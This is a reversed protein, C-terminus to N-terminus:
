IAQENLKLIEANEPSVRDSSYVSHAINNVTDFLTDGRWEAGSGLAKSCKSLLAKERALKEGSAKVPVISVQETHGTQNKVEVLFIVQALEMEYTSNIQVDWCVICDPRINNEFKYKLSTPTEESDDDTLYVKEGVGYPGLSRMLKPKIHRDSDVWVLTGATLDDITLKNKM